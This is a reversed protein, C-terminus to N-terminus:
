RMIFPLYYINPPLPSTPQATHTATPTNPIPTAEQKVATLGLDFGLDSSNPSSQHVEVAIINTGSVISTAPVTLKFYALEDAGGVGNAAMTNFLVVGSPMNNRAVEAGNIYVVVGDDRRINLTMTVFESASAVEFTKRFYTTPHRKDSPGGKITTSVSDGFGLPSLGKAWKSDDFNPKRWTTAQDVGNDLYKWVSGPKVLTVTKTPLPTSTPTRTVTHTATPRPTRTITPTPTESPLPTQTPSPEVTQTATPRPTRTITPTPTESPLPTQTPSPEVTQTATPRPTRTITPTPTESPLPTQTPTATEEEITATPTPTHTYTSTPEPTDTPHGGNCQNYTHNDAEFGSRAIMRFNMECDSTQVFLAGFDDNYRARTESLWGSSFGYISRGGLGVVLYPIGDVELREYLHDHGSLVADAGWDKFPWQMWGSNGSPGGSYPPHHFVVIQWAASSSALRNRLWNGQTSNSSAGDPERTDSDIM